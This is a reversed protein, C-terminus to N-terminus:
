KQGRRAGGSDDPTVRLLPFVRRTGTLHVPEVRSREEEGVGEVGWVVGANLLSTCYKM